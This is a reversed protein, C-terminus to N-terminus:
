LISLYRGVKEQYERYAEQFRLTLDREEKLIVWFHTGVVVAPLFLVLWLSNFLLTMGLYIATWAVYMPNRSHAYPGTKIIKQPHEIDIENVENVAWGVLGIGIVVMLWGFPRGLARRKILRLPVLLHVFVGFIMLGLHVEPIPINKWVSPVSSRAAM